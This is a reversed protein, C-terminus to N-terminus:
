ADEQEDLIRRLDAVDEDSLGRTDALYRVLPTMSDDLVRDLFVKVARPVFAEKSRRASYQRVPGVKRVRVLDKKEMRELLTKVTSLAWGTEERVTEHVERVTGRRLEWLIQMLRWETPTLEEPTPAM